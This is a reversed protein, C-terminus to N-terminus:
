EDKQNASKQHKLYKPAGIIRAILTNQWYLSQLYTHM